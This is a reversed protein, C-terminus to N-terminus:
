KITNIVFFDFGYAHHLLPEQYIAESLKNFQIEPKHEKPIINPNYVDEEKPTSIPDDNIWGMSVEHGTQLHAIVLETNKTNYVRTSSVYYSSLNGTFLASQKYKEYKALSIPHKKNRYILYDKKNVTDNKVKLIECKKQFDCFSIYKPTFFNLNPYKLKSTHLLKKYATKLHADYKEEKVTLKEIVEMSVINGKLDYIAISLEINWMTKNNRIGKEKKEGRYSSRYIFTDATIIEGNGIGIPFMKFQTTAMCAFSDISFLVILVVISKFKM